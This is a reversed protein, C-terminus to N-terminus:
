KKYKIKRKIIESKIKIGGKLQYQTRKVWNSNKDYKYAYETYQTKILDGFENYILDSFKRESFNVRGTYSNIVNSNKDLLSITVTNNDYNYKAIEFGVIGFKPKELILKVPNGMNDNEYTSTRFPTGFKNKDIIKILYNNSDYIFDSIEVSHGVVPNWTEFKNSTKRTKTSDYVITLRASLNGEQNYRLENTLKNNKNYESKEKKTEIGDNRFYTIDSTVESVIPISRLDYDRDQSLATFITQSYSSFGILFLVSSYFLKTMNKHIAALPETYFETVIPTQSLM